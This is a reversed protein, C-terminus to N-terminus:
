VTLGKYRNKLEQAQQPTITGSDKAANIADNM